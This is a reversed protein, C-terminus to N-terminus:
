KPSIKVNKTAVWKGDIKIKCEGNYKDYIEYKYEFDSWERSCMRFLAAERSLILKEGFFEMISIIFCLLLLSSFIAVFWRVTRDFYM